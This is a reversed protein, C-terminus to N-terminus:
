HPREPMQDAVPEDEIEWPRAPFLRKDIEDLSRRNTRIASMSKEIAELPTKSATGTRLNAEATFATLAYAFVGAVSM